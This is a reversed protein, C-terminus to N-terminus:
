LNLPELNWERGQVAYHIRIQSFLTLKTLDFGFNPALNAIIQSILMKLLFKPGKIGEKDKVRFTSGQVQSRNRIKRGKILGFDSIGFGL